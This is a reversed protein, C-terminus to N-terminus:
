KARSPRRQFESGPARSVLNGSNESARVSNGKRLLKSGSSVKAEVKPDDAPSTPAAAEADGSVTLLLSAKVATINVLNGLGIKELEGIKRSTLFMEALAKAAM